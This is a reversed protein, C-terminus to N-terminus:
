VHAKRDAVISATIQKILGVLNQLVEPKEDNADLRLLTSVAQAMLKTTDTVQYWNFQMKVAGTVPDKTPEPGNEIARAIIRENSDYAATEIGYISELDPFELFTAALSPDVIKMAILKEIQEMKTKPDKSLTSADSFQIRFMNREKKIDKWKIDARFAGKPLVDSNDPLVDILVEALESQFRTYAMQLANFKESEVDQLTDLAVGSNIGTPKKSQASLQSVGILNYSKEEIMTLIQLYQPDIAPPTITVIPTSIGGAAGANYYAIDGIKSAAYLEKELESGSPVFTTQAHGRNVALAVKALTNDYFEQLRWLMDAVSDSWPGKVPEMYYMWVFPARDFSIDRTRIVEGNIFDWVKKNILDYYIEYRCNARPHTEIQNWLVHGEPIIDLLYTLPYEQKNIACKTLRGNAMEAGDWVFEWPSIPIISSSEDNIWLVGMDFILADYLASVAKKTVKQMDYYLDFFVQAARCVKLTNWTGLTPNFFKRVKNQSMKSALTDIVSRTINLTPIMGNTQEYQTYYSLPYTYNSQLNDSRLLTNYFRQYSRRYKMERTECFGKMQTLDSRVYQEDRAFKKTEEKAM